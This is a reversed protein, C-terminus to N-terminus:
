GTEERTEEGKGGKGNKWVWRRRAAGVGANRLRRTRARRRGLEAGRAAEQCRPHYNIYGGDRSEIHSSVPGVFAAPGLDLEPIHSNDVYIPPPTTWSLVLQVVPSAM